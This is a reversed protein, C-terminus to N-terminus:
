AVGGRDEASDHVSHDRDLPLVLQHLNSALSQPPKAVAMDLDDLTVAGAAPGVFGGIVRDEGRRAAAVNGLGQDGLKRGAPPQHHRDAIGAPNLLQDLDGLLVASDQLLFIEAPHPEYRQDALFAPRISSISNSANGRSIARAASGSGSM